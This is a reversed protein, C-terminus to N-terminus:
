DCRAHAIEAVTEVFQGDQYENIVEGEIRFDASPNLDKYDEVTVLEPEGYRESINIYLYDTMPNQVGTNFRDPATETPKEAKEQEIPHDGSNSSWGCDRNTCEIFRVMSYYSVPSGCRPCLDAPEDPLDDTATSGNIAEFTPTLDTYTSMSKPHVYEHGLTEDEVLVMNYRGRGVYETIRCKDIGEYWVTAGVPYAYANDTVPYLEYQNMAAQVLKTGYVLVGFPHEPNQEIRVFGFPPYADMVPRNFSSYRYETIESM